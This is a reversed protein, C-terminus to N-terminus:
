LSKKVEIETFAEILDGEMINNYNEINLGCDLGAVVEKVDDKFRKLSGLEGTHIVIGDRILRVKNSRKIKGEKVMCGAITGVKSIKFTQQVELTATVEERIEPALMGEMATKIEEITDYIISYTRIEVGEQEAMKRAAQSPRVQFGIIIASSAAALVVDSESIQGVAKHIVNVQVEETSLRILSDALAEVSGDVDGKIIVNLEHFNGMEKRRAVEDLTLVKRTRDNQERQLQERKNAISRAEQESDLVNFGDGATPAGSLGLIQVPDSPGASKVRQNRVNFMAKVRGHHTGALVVDGIQLTGNQVLVTAVYGRGKDLSSEIISGSAKRKPNAQLGLMDAELLVKELLENVGIGKKASIEQCQYKGGWDEVLYNMNALAEKIKEPNAAPKDVKNIAFVIPVGAAAAHNIAEVTQPMVDDDAAVIIIAIDTVKAGRARMATFAEHGPTDLFTIRRGNKLELNYAGIHQTIGGAEGAIVNTKRINDLLSTKGHDVHGMVTIIPPRAILDDPDEAEEEEQNITEVVDASVFETKFDFEEAVLNLTEADLRQNISVFLGISMCTAIVENVPVDMMVALDSVTVFETLKLIRSEQREERIADMAAKSAAERKDKRYKAGKSLNSTKSTLRALTEKIQKQVDEDSVEPQVPPRKASKAKRSTNDRGATREGANKRKDDDKVKAAESKVDVAKKNIRKRKRKANETTNNREQQREERTKKKPRMSSNISDLDIKGVVKVQPEPLTEGPRYIEEKPKEQLSEAVALTSDKPSNEKVTAPVTKSEEKKQVIPSAVKKEPEEKKKTEISIEIKEVRDQKVPKPQQKVPSPSTKPANKVDDVLKPEDVLVKEKEVAKVELKEKSAPVVMAKKEIPASQPEAKEVPADTKKILPRTPEEPPLTEKKDRKIKPHVGDLNEIRGKVTLQPKFTEPVETWIAGTESPQSDSSSSAGESPTADSVSSASKPAFKKRIKEVTAVPVDKGFEAVLCEFEKKDIRMNPNSEEVEFGKEKLKSALTGVGVNFEKALSFLKVSM